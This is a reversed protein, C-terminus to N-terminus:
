GPPDPVEALKEIMGEPGISVFRFTRTHNLAAALHPSLTQLDQLRTFRTNLELVPIPLRELNQEYRIKKDTTVLVDFAKAAEALLEGNALQRWGVDRAHLVEHGVFLSKAKYHVCNDLLVRM